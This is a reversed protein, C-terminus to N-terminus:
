VRRVRGISLVHRMLVPTLFGTLAILLHPLVPLPPPLLPPPVLMRLTRQSVSRRTKVIHADAEKSVRAASDILVVLLREGGVEFLNVRRNSHCLYFLDLEQLRHDRMHGKIFVVKLRRNDCVRRLKRSSCM